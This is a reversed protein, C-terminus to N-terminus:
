DFASIDKIEKSDTIESFDPSKIFIHLKGCICQFAHLATCIDVTKIMIKSWFMSIQKSIQQLNDSSIQENCVGFPLLSEKSFQKFDTIETIEKFDTIENFDSLKIFIHLKGCLHVSRYLRQNSFNTNKVLLIEKSILCSIGQFRNM